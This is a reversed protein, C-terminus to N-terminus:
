SHSVEQFGAVGVLDASLVSEIESLQQGFARVDDLEVIAGAGEVQLFGVSEFDLPLQVTVDLTSGVADEVRELSTWLLRTDHERTLLAGALGELRLVDTDFGSFEAERGDQDVVGPETVPEVREHLHDLLRDHDNEVLEFLDVVTVVLLLKERKEVTDVRALLEVHDRAVVGSTNVLVHLVTRSTDVVVDRVRTQALVENSFVAVVLQVVLRM